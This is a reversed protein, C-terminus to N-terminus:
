RRITPTSRASTWTTTSCSRPTRSARPAAQDQGHHQRHLQRGRGLARGRRLEARVRAHAARDLRGDLPGHAGPARRRLARARRRRRPLREPRLDDGAARAGLAVAGDGVPARQRAAGRHQARQLHPLRRRRQHHQAHRRAPRRDARRRLRRARAGDGPRHRARGADHLDSRDGARSRRASRRRRRRHARLRGDALRRRAHRPAPHHLRHAGTEMHDFIPRGAADFLWDGGSTQYPTRVLSTSPVYWDDDHYVCYDPYMDGLAGAGGVTAGASPPRARRRARRRRRRTPDDTTFVALGAVDDPSVIRRWRRRARRRLAAAAALSPARASAAATRTACRARSWPPTARRRGCRCGRSAALAVRPRSRRVARRRRHLGVEVPVRRLFDPAPTSPRRPVGRRRPSRATARRAAVGSRDAGLRPLLRRRRPLLRARRAGGAGADPGRSRRPQPQPIKSVDITGDARRLDDSPFPADYLTARAFSM